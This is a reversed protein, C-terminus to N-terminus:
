VVGVPAEVKSIRNVISNRIKGGISVGKLGPKRLIANLSPKVVSPSMAIKIIEQKFYPLFKQIM